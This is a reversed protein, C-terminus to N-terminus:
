RAELKEKCIEWLADCLNGEYSKEVEYGCCEKNDGEVSFLCYYWNDGLFEIMQGISLMPLDYNLIIHTDGVKQNDKWWSRLRSKGFESLHNIQQDTIHQKM